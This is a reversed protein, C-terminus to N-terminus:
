PRGGVTARIQEIRAPSLGLAGAASIVHEPGWLRRGANVLPTPTIKGRRVLHNLRRETVGLLRAVQGTAFPHVM